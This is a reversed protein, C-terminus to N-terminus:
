QLYIPQNLTIKMPTGVPLDLAGGRSALVVGLGAGAATGIAAGKGGGVLAGLLAGVAGGAAVDGVTSRTRSQQVGGEPTASPTGQIVRGVTGGVGTSGPTVGSLTASLAATRGDPLRIQQFRLQLTSTGTMGGSPTASGVQGMVLSGTPILVGGDSSLVPQTLTASFPDGAVSSRTSLTNDLKLQLVTGVPVTGTQRGTPAAQNAAPAASASPNAAPQAGYTRQPQAAPNQARGYYGDDYGAEFGARYNVRYTQLDIGSDTSYGQNGASYGPQSLFDYATGQQADARGQAYGSQYGLTRIQTRQQPTLPQTQAQAPAPQQAHASPMWASGALGLTVVMALAAVGWNEKVM